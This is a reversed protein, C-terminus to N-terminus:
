QVSHLELPQKIFGPGLSFKAEISGDNCELKATKNRTESKMM